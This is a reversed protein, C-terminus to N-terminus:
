GSLHFNGSEGYTALAIVLAVSVAAVLSARV